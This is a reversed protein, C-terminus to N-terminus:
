AARRRDRGRGHRGGRSHDLFDFVHKLVPRIPGTSLLLEAAQEKGVKSRYLLKFANQLVKIDEASFNNRKLAVINVCRPHAPGGEALMYPPVDHLVRSMAGVFCFSGISAFQSVGVGGSITVDDHIHSHGGLMVNNAMVVRDGVSCDHAVHSGAMLFCNNGVQTIGQEKTTARNVTVSERFINKNGILVKTPEGRYSLDQPAEGIVAGQFFQNDEGITTNGTITVHNALVCGRGLKVNPGIVCYHGIEVGPHIEARPDVAATAAINVSM